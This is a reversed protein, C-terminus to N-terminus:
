DAETMEIFKGHWSHYWVDGDAANVSLMGDVQGDRLTHLTYYGPFAEPEGVTLGDRDALWEEAAARADRATLRTESGSGSMMGYRTNWMM